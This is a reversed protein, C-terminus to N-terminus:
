WSINWSFTNNTNSNLSQLVSYGLGLFHSKVSNIDSLKKVDTTLGSWVNYYSVSEPDTTTNTAASIGLDSNATGNGVVFSWSTSLPIYSLVINDTANKGASVGTIAADNIDAIVSNLNLGTTGLIVTSGALIVTNTNTVTVPTVTGTVVITPTSNTMTTGNSITIERFQNLGATIIERSIYDIENHVILDTYGLTRASAANLVGTTM